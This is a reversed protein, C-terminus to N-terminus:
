EGLLASYFVVAQKLQKISIREDIGHYRKVDEKTIKNFRFRYVKDSIAGYHKSDTGAVTLSPVVIISTDAKNISREIRRYAITDAPSIPSAENIRGYPSIAVELSGTLNRLRQLVAKSSDGPYMRYNIVAKAQTPLVNDKVGANFMTVAATTRVVANTSANQSLQKLVLPEFLWLNAFVSRQLWPMHPALGIFMDSVPPLLAAPAPNAEVASILKSLQGVATSDPPVSSHGGPTKLTLEFSAYGKEALGILAVPESVGPIIGQTIMGGEDLIFEAQVKRRALARALYVAGEYGGTEEDHGFALYVTRQPKRGQSLVNELAQMCAILAGKDDMAGRGWVYGDKVRGSFPAVTWQGADGAPVVDYHILIVIPKLETNAGPVHYLLSYKNVIDWSVQRHINPFQQQLLQQFALFNKEEFQAGSITKLQIAASLKEVVADDVSSTDVTITGTTAPVAPLTLTRLLLVALLALLGTSVFWLLKKM